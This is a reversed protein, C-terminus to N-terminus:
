KFYKFIGYGSILFCVIVGILTIKRWLFLQSYNLYFHEGSNQLKETPGKLIYWVILLLIGSAFYFITKSLIEKKSMEPNFLKM